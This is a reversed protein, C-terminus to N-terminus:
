AFLNLIDSNLPRGLLPIVRAIVPAPSTVDIKAASMSQAVTLGGFAHVGADTSDWPVGGGLIKAM